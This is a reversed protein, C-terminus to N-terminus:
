VLRTIEERCAAWAPSTTDILADHDAGDIPRLRADGGARTAADVYRRSQDPDVTTDALGHVCVVPCGAPVLAAPSAAAYRDPVGAPTGGLFAVVPTGRAPDDAAAVLDLVGAQSVVGRPRVRPVPGSRRSAAWVALQGGASHGLLVTRTLDLEPVGALADVAAAVDDLTTPFGGGAGLRRYEVNWAAVGANALDVALPTGLDLGFEQRWFGGHIVVVVPHPAPRPPLHLMGFQAPDPGYALRRPPATGPAPTPTASTSGTGPRPGDACAALAGLAAVGLAARRSIAATDVPSPQRRAATTRGAASVAM